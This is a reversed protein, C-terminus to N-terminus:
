AVILDFEDLDNLYSFGLKPTVDSPLDLNENLDCVTIQNGEHWYDYASKGQEGYGLIAIKM